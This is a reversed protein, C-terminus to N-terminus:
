LLNILFHMYSVLAVIKNEIFREIIMHAINEFTKYSEDDKIKAFLVGGMGSHRGGFPFTGISDLWLSFPNKSIYDLIDPQLDNLTDISQQIAEDSQLPLM